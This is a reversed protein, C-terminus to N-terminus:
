PRQHKMIVAEAAHIGDIAASVIGGAYGAGEGAPFIGKHQVAEGSEDRLIRVPASTRTEIGTLVADPNDFGAVRGGFQRIGEAVGSAVFDPLVDHLDTKITSLPYSPLIDGWDGTIAHTFYDGVRQAPARYDGGVQYAKKEWNRQFELGALIGEGCDQERVQVVVAGNANRGDRGSTSMGNVCLTEAESICPIVTGGPCMCFTYIGREDTTKATLAYEAAGLAPHGAFEGYQATNIDEQLHEIRLGVAFPKFEMAMGIDHCLRYIDRASHGTAVIAANTHLTQEQGQHVYHLARLTEGEFDFGTVRSNFQITGGLQEIQKRINKIIMPLMDSGIHPKSEILIDENAGADVLQQLVMTSRIDKSRSTLKGDSFAGAGGEGFLANNDEDYEGGLEFNIVHRRRSDVDSGRELVLPRYGNQALMLAAFLGCPGAGIVVPPGTLAAEGPLLLMPPAPQYPIADGLPITGDGITAIVSYNYCVTGRRADISRRLVRLGMLERPRIGMKKITRLMLVEDGEDLGIRLQHLIYQRAM